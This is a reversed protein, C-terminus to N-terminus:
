VPSMTFVQESVHHVPKCPTRACISVPWSTVVIAYSSCGTTIPQACPWAADPTVDTGSLDNVVLNDAGGLANLDIRELDNLDMIINAVNRTFLVRGGNASVAFNEAINSGNFLM